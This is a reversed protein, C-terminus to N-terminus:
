KFGRNSIRKPMLVDDSTFMGAAEIRACAQEFLAYHTSQETNAIGNVSIHGSYGIYNLLPAIMQPPVKVSDNLNAETVWEPGARYIISIYAGDTALPVQVTNYGVTNLSLPNDEENIPLEVVEVDSGSEVEGYATIAWMFDSPMEYMEVGDQLEVMEESVKLAFRKYLEILGLNIYELVANVDNSIAINKLERNAATDIVQQVTM